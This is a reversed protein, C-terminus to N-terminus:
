SMVSPTNEDGIDVGAGVTKGSYLAVFVSYQFMYSVRVSRATIENAGVQM